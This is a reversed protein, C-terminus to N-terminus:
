AALFPFLKSYNVINNSKMIDIFKKNLRECYEREIALQLCEKMIQEAEETKKHSPGSERFIRLLKLFVEGHAIMFMDMSKEKAKVIKDITKTDLAKFDFGNARSINVPEEKMEIKMETETFSPRESKRPTFEEKKTTKSDSFSIEEKIEPFPSGPESFSGSRSSRSRLKQMKQEAIRQSDAINYSTSKKGKHTEEVQMKDSSLSTMFAQDEFENEDVNAKHRLVYKFPNGFPIPEKKLREDNEDAKYDRFEPYKKLYAGYDYLKGVPKEISGKPNKKEEAEDIMRSNQDRPRIFLDNGSDPQEIKDSLKDVLDLLRTRNNLDKMLKDIDDEQKEERKISKLRQLSCCEARGEYHLARISDAIADWEQKVREFVALYQKLNADLKNLDMNNQFLNSYRNFYKWNRAFIWGLKKAALFYHIYQIYYSPVELLYSQIKSYAESTLAEPSNATRISETTTLYNYLSSFRFINYHHFNFEISEILVGEKEKRYYRMFGFPYTEKEVKHLLTFTIKQCNPLKQRMMASFEQFFECNPDVEFKESPLDSSSLRPHILKSFDIYYTPYTYYEYIENEERIDKELTVINKIKFPFPNEPLTVKAVPHLNLQNKSSLYTSNSKVMLRVQMAKKALLPFDSLGSPSYQNEADVSKPAYDIPSINIIISSKLNALFRDLLHDLGYYSDFGICNGGLKKSFNNFKEFNPHKLEFREGKKTKVSVINDFPYLLFTFFQQDWRYFSPGDIRDELRKMFSTDSGCTILVVMGNDVKHPDRGGKYNDHGYLIRCKNLLQYGHLVADAINKSNEVTIAKLQFNFHSIDHFPQSLVRAKPDASTTLLFLRDFKSLFHKSRMKCFNEILIKGIDLLTLKTKTSQLMSFGTDLVFVINM